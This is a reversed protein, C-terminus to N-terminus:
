EAWDAPVAVRDIWLRGARAEVSVHKASFRRPAGAVLAELDVTAHGFWVGRAPCHLTEDKVTISLQGPLAEFSVPTSAYLDLRARLRTLTFRLFGGDVLLRPHGPDLKKGIRKHEAFKAAGSLEIPLPTEGFAERWASALRLLVDGRVMETAFFLEGWVASRKGVASATGQWDGFMDPGVGFKLAVGQCEAVWSLCESHPGDPTFGVEAFVQRTPATDLLWKLEDRNMAEGRQSLRMPSATSPLSAAGAEPWGAAEATRMLQALEGLAEKFDAKAHRRVLARIARAPLHGIPCLTQDPTFGNWRSGADCQIQQAMTEVRWCFVPGPAVSPQSVYGYPRTVVVMQGLNDTRGGVLVAVSGEQCRADSPIRLASM